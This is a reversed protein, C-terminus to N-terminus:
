KAHKLSFDSNKSIKIVTDSIKTRLLSFRSRSNITRFLVDSIKVESNKQSYHISSIDPHSTYPLGITAINLTIYENLGSRINM